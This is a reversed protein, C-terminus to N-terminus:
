KLEFDLRTLKFVVPLTKAKQGPSFRESYDRTAQEKTIVVNINLSHATNLAANFAALTEKVGEAALVIDNISGVAKKDTAM